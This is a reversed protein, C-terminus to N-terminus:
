DLIYGEVIYRLPGPTTGGFPWCTVLAIRKDFGNNSIGSQEWSAIRIQDVQYKFKTGNNDTIEIIDEQSVNGLFAFHTDRHAAYIATGRQGPNATNNLHGPAFALAEGSSGDLAIINGDSRGPINISAVPFTDAWPWAKIKKNSALTEQWATDLLVQAVIAKTKIYLGQGVLLLGSLAMGVLLIRVAGRHLFPFLLSAKQSM